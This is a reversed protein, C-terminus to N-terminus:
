SVTVGLVFTAARRLEGQALPLLDLLDRQALDHAFVLPHRHAEVPAAPGGGQESIDQAGPEAQEGVAEVGEGCGRRV